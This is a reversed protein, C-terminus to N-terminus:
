PKERHVDSLMRIEANDGTFGRFKRRRINRQRGDPHVLLVLTPESTDTIPVREIIALMKLDAQGFNQLTAWGELKPHLLSLFRAARLGLVLIVEPKQIGVELRFLSRSFEIFYRKTVPSSKKRIKNHVVVGPIVNTFFCHRPDIGGKFLLLLLNAWAPNIRSKTQDKEHMKLFDMRRDFQYGAIMIEKDSIKGQEPDFIGQGGPFFINGQENGCIKQIGAPYRDFRAIAEFLFRLETNM